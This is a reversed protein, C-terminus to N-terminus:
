KKKGGGAPRETRIPAIDDSPVSPCERTDPGSTPAQEIIVTGDDPLPPLKGGEGAGRVADLQEDSLVTAEHKNSDKKTKDSM